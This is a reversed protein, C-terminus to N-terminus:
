KPLRQALRHYGAWPDRRRAVRAPVTEVTFREPRLGKKVEDWALPTAVTAGPRARTSYPAVATAGRANRLWDVFIRGRRKAKSAQSVYRDPEEAELARAIGRAFESVQRWDHVRALPAEVHLGKGGTTKAFSALGLAKLRRRIELAAEVVRPFPVDPAPDLDFVVRDPATVRDARSGWGHIELVGRQVLSVLGELGRAPDIAVYAKRGGREAIEVGRLGPPTEEGLHKQFFCAKGHGEPCRLLMLPREAVFPLMREAVAEYYAALARKTVGQGPWLVKDPHTLAVGAVAAGDGAPESSSRSAAPAPGRERVVDSAPKDERLGLFSPHRLRGDATWETFSVEGVLRPTAWRVGRSDGVGEPDEAFPSTERAHADLRKKLDRRVAESFGTGVRGAYRLGGRRDHVGDHYGLLLAGIGRADASHPVYGAVVFEQRESCRVKRWEPTRRPRHVGAALKSVIGELGHRCAEAHFRGGKGKVHRSYLLLGRSRARPKPLIRALAEKRELLPLGRLDKGDLHLLDFAYYRLREGGKEALARQLDQFSTTGDPRVSVLEGDIAADRVPVSAAAAALRPFRATWDQGNRSVLRAKGGEVLALIRYGDFKIEHIWEDGEPAADVLTALQPALDKPLSAARRPTGRRRSTKVSEPLRGVVDAARGHKAEGDREKVLLWNKGDRGATRMRVLAFGGHLKEGDLTFAVKGRRLGERPDGQPEWRGRDWVIVPGAGYQGQPIVGEFDAYEVPHDEVQVALRKDAPDLSPGKPVAWSKLVGDLELRFDYHLRSADHKQVVFRGGAKTARAVRGRPEPTRAFRRKARYRVLGM